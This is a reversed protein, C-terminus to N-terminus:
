IGFAMANIANQAPISFSPTSASSFPPAYVDIAPFGTGVYLNGKADAGVDTTETTSYTLTAAPLSGPTLPLDYILVEGSFPKIVDIALQNTVADYACADTSLAGLGTDVVVPIGAYSPAYVDITGTGYNTVYLDQMKDFCIGSPGSLGSAIFPLVTSANSLPTSIIDIANDTYDAVYFKGSADFAAGGPAFSLALTFLTSTTPNPRAYGTLTKLFADAAIVNGSGDIAVGIIEGGSGTAISSVPTSAARFPATFYAITNSPVGDGGAYLRAPATPVPTPTPTASPQPAPSTGGSSGCGTLLILLAGTPLIRNM